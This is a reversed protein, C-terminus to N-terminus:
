GRRRLEEYDQLVALIRRMDGPQLRWEGAEVRRAIEVAEMLRETREDPM